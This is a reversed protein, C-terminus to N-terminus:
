HSRDTRMPGMNTESEDTEAKLSAAERTLKKLDPDVSGDPSASSSVVTIGIVMGDLTSNMSPSCLFALCQLASCKM